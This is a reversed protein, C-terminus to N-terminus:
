PAQALVGARRPGAGCRSRRDPRGARLSGPEPARPHAAGAARRLRHSHALGAPCRGGTARALRMSSSGPSCPCCGRRSSWSPSRCRTLIALAFAGVLLLLPLLLDVYERSRAPDPWLWPARYRPRVFLVGVSIAMYVGVCMMLLMLALILWEVNVTRILDQDYFAVLTWRQGVEMPHVLARYDNGWYQTDVFESHRAGVLARLRRNGDAEVFFNESLKHQPDSHFLM